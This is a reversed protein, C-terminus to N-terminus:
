RIRKLAKNIAKIDFADPDFKGGIWELLDEHEEHEPDQIAPLFSDYYGWIGGVDEPPAAREGEICVAHGPYRDDETQRAEVTIAHEWSDGFDYLYALKSRVRPAVEQLTVEAEDSVAPGGTDELEFIPDSYHGKATTFEHLHANEWGMVLQIVAHLDALRIDGPV